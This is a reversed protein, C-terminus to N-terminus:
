GLSLGLTSWKEMGNYLLLLHSWHRVKTKWVAISPMHSCASKITLHPERTGLLIFFFYVSVFSRRILTYPWKDTRSKWSCKIRSALNYSFERVSQIIQSATLIGIKFLFAFIIREEVGWFYGRAKTRNLIHRAFFSLSEEVPRDGTHWGGGRGGWLCEYKKSM